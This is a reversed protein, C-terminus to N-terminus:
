LGKAIPVYNMFISSLGSKPDYEASVQGWSFQGEHGLKNIVWKKYKEEKSKEKEETWSNGNDKLDFKKDDVIFILMKLEGNHFGFSINYFENNVKVNKTDLWKYGNKMDRTEQIEGLKLKNVNEFSDFPLLEIESSIKLTGNKRNIM